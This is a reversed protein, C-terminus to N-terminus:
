DKKSRVIELNNKLKHANERTQGNQTVRLMTKLYKTGTKTQSKKQELLKQCYLKLKKKLWQVFLGMHPQHFFKNCLRAWETGVM